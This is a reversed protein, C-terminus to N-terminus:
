MVIVHVCQIANNAYGLRNWEAETPQRNGAADVARSMLVNPGPATADWHYEWRRWAYREPGSTLDATEWEMGGNVSVEVRTIPGAGSWALGRVCHMGCPLSMGEAPEGILSRVRMQTLPTSATQDPTPPVIVYRDAQYFGDFPHSQAVIRTVWKVAAMGYWGPVILRLPFGHEVPLGEGNMSYALLTDPDLAQERSLGREYTLRRGAEAVYGGDAGEVVVSSAEAGLGAYALVRYLPVGTWEACSAAGYGWPEGDMQPDM